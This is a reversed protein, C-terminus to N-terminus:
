IQGEAKLLLDLPASLSAERFLSPFKYVPALIQEKGEKLFVRKLVVSFTGTLSSLSSREKLACLNHSHDAGATILKQWPCHIWVHANKVENEDATCTEMVCEASTEYM